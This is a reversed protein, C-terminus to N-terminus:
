KFTLFFLIGEEEQLFSFSDGLRLSINNNIQQMSISNSMSFDDGSLHSVPRSSQNSNSPSSTINHNMRNSPRLPRKPNVTEDLFIKNRNEESESNISKISSISDRHSGISGTHFQSTQNNGKDGVLYSIINRGTYSYNETAM